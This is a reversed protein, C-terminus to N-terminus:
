SHSPPAGSPDREGASGPCPDEPGWPIPTERVEPRDGAARVEILKGKPRRCGEEGVACNLAGDVKRLEIPGHERVEILSASGHCEGGGAVGGLMVIGLKSGKASPIPFTGGFSMAEPVRTAFVVKGANHVILASKLEVSGSAGPLGVSRYRNILVAQAPEGTGLFDGDISDDVVPSGAAGDGGGPIRAEAELVSSPVQANQVADRPHRFDYAVTWPAEASSGSPAPVGEPLRAGSPGNGCAPAGAAAFLSVISIWVRCTTM